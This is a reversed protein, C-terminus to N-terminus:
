KINTNTPNNNARTSSLLAQFSDLINIKTVQQFTWYLTVPRLLCTATFCDYIAYHIMKNRKLASLTSYMPDLETTWENVTISKDILMGITYILAQQLTWPENPRYSSSKHYTCKSLLNMQGESNIDNMIFNRRNSLSCMECYSLAWSYWDAFKLQLNVVSTKIPWEFWQYVIAPYIEKRLPGWSYINNRFTFILEFLDDGCCEYSTVPELAARDKYWDPVPGVFHDYFNLPHFRERNKKDRTNGMYVGESRLCARIEIDEHGGYKRCTTNPKQHGQNFRKLAERSLVYSAGGQHYDYGKSIWGFTIPESTNQNRLFAKLNEMFIYTDDDAKVFWDFNNFHYEYAYKLALVTKQTLHEYGPTINAISAIPLGETDNSSETIFFLGDCRRGWTSNVARARFGIPISNKPFRIDNSSRFFFM